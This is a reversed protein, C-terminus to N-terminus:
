WCPSWYESNVLSLNQCSGTSGLEIALSNLCPFPSKWLNWRTFHIKSFHPVQFHFKKMETSFKWEEGYGEKTKTSCFEKCFYCEYTFQINGGIHSNQLFQWHNFSIFPKLVALRFAQWLRNHLIATPTIELTAFAECTLSHLATVSWPGHYVSAFAVPGTAREKSRSKNDKMIFSCTLSFLCQTRDTWFFSLSQTTLSTLTNEGSSTSTGM